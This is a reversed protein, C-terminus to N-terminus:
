ATGRQPDARGDCTLRRQKVLTCQARLVFRIAGGMEHSALYDDLSLSVEYDIQTIATNALALLSGTDNEDSSRGLSPSRIDCRM